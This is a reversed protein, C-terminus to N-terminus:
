EVDEHEMGNLSSYTLRHLRKLTDVLCQGWYLEFQDRVAWLSDNMCDEIGQQYSSVFNRLSQYIDALGESISKWCSEETQMDEDYVLDEYDDMSQMIDYVNCRIWNYDEETVRDDPLFDGNSEIDPVLSAKLYLLPLLKLMRDMFERRNRGQSQELYACFEAAVTLFEIVDHAYITKEM